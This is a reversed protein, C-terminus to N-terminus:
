ICVLIYSWIQLGTMITFKYFQMLFLNIENNVENNIPTMERSFLSLIFFHQIDYQKGVTKGYIKWIKATVDFM